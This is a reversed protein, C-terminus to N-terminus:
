TVIKDKDLAGAGTKLVEFTHGDFVLLSHRRVSLTYTGRNVM